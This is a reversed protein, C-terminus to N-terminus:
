VDTCSAYCTELRQPCSPSTAAHDITTEYMKWVLEPWGSGSGRGVIPATCTHYEADCGAICARGDETDMRPTIPKRFACAALLSLALTAFVRTM